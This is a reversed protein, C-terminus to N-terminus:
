YSLPDVYFMLAELPPLLLLLLLLITTCVQIEPDDKNHNLAQPIIIHGKALLLPSNPQLDYYVVAKIAELGHMQPWLISTLM